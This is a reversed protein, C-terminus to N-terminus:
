QFLKESLTGRITGNIAIAASYQFSQFSEHLPEISAQHYAEDGYVLSPM